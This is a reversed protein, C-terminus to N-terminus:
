PKGVQNKLGQPAAIVNAIHLHDETLVKACFSPSAIKVVIADDPIDNLVMQQLDCRQKGHLLRYADRDGQGNLRKLEGSTRYVSCAAPM